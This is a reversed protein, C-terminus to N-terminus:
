WGSHGLVRAGAKRQLHGGLEGQRLILSWGQERLGRPRQM